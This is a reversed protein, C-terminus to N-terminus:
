AFAAEVAAEIELRYFAPDCFWPAAISVDANAPGTPIQLKHDASDPLMALAGYDLTVRDLRNHKSVVAQAIRCLQIVCNQYAIQKETPMVLNRTNVPREFGACRARRHEVQLANHWLFPAVLLSEM